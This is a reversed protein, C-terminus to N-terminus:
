KKKDIQRKLAELAGDVAAEFSKEQKKAFLDGNNTHLKIEAVKNATDSSNELKLIVDSHIIGNHFRTLKNVREEIFQILKKDADFHVSQIKTTM